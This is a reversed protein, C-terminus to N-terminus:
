VFDASDCGIFSQSFLFAGINDPGPSIHNTITQSSNALSINSPLSAMPTTSSNISPWAKKINTEPKPKAVAPM